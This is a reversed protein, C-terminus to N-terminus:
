RKLILTNAGELPELPSHKRAKELKLLSSSNKPEHDKESDESGVTYCTLSQSQGEVKMTVNGESRKEQKRGILARKM